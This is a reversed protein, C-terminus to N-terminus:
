RAFDIKSTWHKKEFSLQCLLNQQACIELVMSLGLGLGETQHSGRAFRATLADIPQTPPLASNEVLLMKEELLVRLAGGTCNHKVANVLLNSVLIEALIPNIDLLTNGLETQVQLQKERILDELAALKKEVLHKLNLSQRELFQKNEIKSLLLLTQNLRALRKASQGITDLQQAQSESLQEDQLLMEVKNQIIALPTQLEHSANETFKKVTQFDKQVQQSLAELTLNLEQFEQTVAPTFHLPVTDSLRFRRMKELTEYFPQWVQRSVRQNVWLMAGFLLGFALALLAIVLMALENQEITSQLISVQMNQGQIEIPFQLRRFPEAEKELPNFLSTDSFNERFDAPLPAVLLREDNRQFFAPLTDHTKVYSEIAIRSDALQEDVEHEIVYHLVFYMILGTLVFVPLVVQLFKQQTQRLLKM